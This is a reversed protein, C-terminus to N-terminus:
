EKILPLAIELKKEEGNVSNVLAKGKYFKLAGELAKTNATDICLPVDTLESLVKMMELLLAPEDVRPVGANVDLIAAGAEVQALADKKVIDFNGTKLEEQLKKRGTPNIREGIMVTPLESSISVERTESSVITTIIEAM